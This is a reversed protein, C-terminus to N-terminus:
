PRQLEDLALCLDAWAGAKAHSNHLLYHPPYTVVVASHQYRYVRGRLQGLPLALTEPHQHHLLSLAALRGMTLIVRPQVLAIERQLHTECAALESADPLRPTSPRCKVVNSVYAAQAPSQAQRRRLGMVRLMNDLLEGEESAFPHGATEEHLNAPAGLVLCAAQQVGLGGGWVPARRGVSLACAQCNAIAQGL